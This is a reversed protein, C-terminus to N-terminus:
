LLPSILRSISEKFRVQYSRKEYLEGTMEVCYQMDERFHRELCSAAEEDYLVANIEFNYIFSRIDFNASGISAVRGDVIVAKVHMFRDYDYIYCHVGSDLLDSLYTTSAWHVFPHDRKGPIIIRVEVGGLAAM